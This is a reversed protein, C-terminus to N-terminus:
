HVFREQTRRRLLSFKDMVVKALKHSSRSIERAFVFVASEYILVSEVLMNKGCLTTHKKLHLPHNPSNPKSILSDIRAVVLM